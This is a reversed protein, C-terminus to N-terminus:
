NSSEATELEFLDISNVVDKFCRNSIGELNFKIDNSESQNHIKKNFYMIHYPTNIIQKPDKPRISYRKKNNMTTAISINESNESYNLSAVVLLDNKLKQKIQITYENKTNFRLEYADSSIINNEKSLCNKMDNLKVSFLRNYNGSLTNIKVPGDWSEDLWSNGDIKFELLPPLHTITQLGISNFYYYKRETNNEITRYLENHELNLDESIIKPFDSLAIPKNSIRLIGKENPKKVMFLPVARAKVIHPISPNNKNLSSEHRINPILRTQYTRGAGHDSVIYIYSSEYIGIEHLKILIDSLVKLSYLYNAKYNNRSGTYESRDIPRGNEDLIWPVHAGRLHFYKFAPQEYVIKSKTELENVFSQDQYWYHMHGRTGDNNSSAQNRPFIYNEYIYKRFINPSNLFTALSLLNKCNEITLETSALEGKKIINDAIEASIQYNYDVFKPFIDVRYGSNKLSKTFSNKSFAHNVYEKFPVSNDYYKGTFLMPIVPITYSYGTVTDPYYTFGSFVREMVPNEKLLEYFVDSQAEDLLIVIINEKSSFNAIPRYDFTFINDYSQSAYKYYKIIFDASLTILIIVCIYSVFKVIHNKLYISVAIVAIWIILDIYTWSTWLNWDIIKGDLSGFDPYLFKSEAWYLLFLALLLSITLNYVKETLISVVSSIILIVVLSSIIFYPAVELFHFNLENYNNFFIDATSFVLLYLILCCTILATSTFKEIFKSKESM